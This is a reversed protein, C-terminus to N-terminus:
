SAIRISALIGQLEHMAAYEPATSSSLSLTFAFRKAPVIYVRNRFEISGGETHVRAVLAYTAARHGAVVASASAEEVEHTPHIRELATLASSLVGKLDFAAPASRCTAQFTPIVHDSRGHDFQVCVFPSQARKLLAQIEADDPEFRRRASLAWRTPLFIWHEPKTLSFGLRPEHFENEVPRSYQLSSDRVSTRASDM